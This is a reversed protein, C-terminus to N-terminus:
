GREVSISLELDPHLTHLVSCYRDRSLDIARQLKGADEDDVGETEYVLRVATYRRPAEPRRDGDARVRLGALPVRMRTLIEVVDVGMCTALGILVLEMPSPGAEGGADVAVAGGAAGEAEFRLGGRWSVGVAIDSM